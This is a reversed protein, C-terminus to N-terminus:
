AALCISRRRSVKLSSTLVGARVEATSHTLVLYSGSPLAAVLREVISHAEDSDMIHNVVGLLM